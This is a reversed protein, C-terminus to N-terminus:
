SSLAKSLSFVFAERPIKPDKGLRLLREYRLFKDQKLAVIKLKYPNDIRRLLHKSLIKDKKFELFSTEIM